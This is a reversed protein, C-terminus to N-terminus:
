LFKLINKQIESAVDEANQNGNVKIINEQNALLNFAKHYNKEVKKQNELTEYMELSNRGANLRQMGLEVPIDVFINVDPRLIEACKKNIEIVWEMDMFVSHYAYSSFYYRDSLVTYGQELKVLIGDKKNTLHELRDALFLAAITQQEAEMKHSFISRIMKGIPGDTPEFTSYVKHGNAILFNKLLKIQTSKGSGDIGEFAIFLNKKM